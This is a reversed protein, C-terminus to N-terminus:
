RTRKYIKIDSFNINIENLLDKLMKKKVKNNTNTEFFINSNPIKEPERLSTESFSFYSGKNMLRIFPSEGFEIFIKEIIFSMVNSFHKVPETYKKYSVKCVSVGTWSEEFDLIRENAGSLPASITEKKSTIQKTFYNESESTVKEFNQKLLAEYATPNKKHTRICSNVANVFEKFTKNNAKEESTLKVITNFDIKEKHQAQYVIHSRKFDNIDLYIVGIGFSNVLREIEEKLSSNMSEPDTSMVLYGENAWSSNSVAQFYFQKLSSLTVKQDKLEFSYLTLNEEKEILNFLEKVSENAKPINIETDDLKFGVIDPHIWENEGKEGNQTNKENIPKCYIGFTQHAFLYFPEYLAAENQKKENEPM